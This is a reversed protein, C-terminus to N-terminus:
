KLRKFKILILLFCGEAGAFKALWQPDAIIKNRILPRTNPIVDPFATKLQDSLDLNMLAKLAVIEQLGSIMLHQKNIVLNYGEKFLEYDALIQTM